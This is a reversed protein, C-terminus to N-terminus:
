GANNKFIKDTLETISEDVDTYNPKYAQMNSIDLSGDGLLNANQKYWTDSGVRVPFDSSTHTYVEVHVYENADGVCYLPDIIDNLSVEVTKLHKYCVCFSSGTQIVITRGSNENGIFAIRGKYVSFVHYATIDIGTHLYGLKVFEPDSKSMVCPKLIESPLGGTIGCNTISM